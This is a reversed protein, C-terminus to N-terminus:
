AANVGRSFHRPAANEVPVEAAQGREALKAAVGEAIKEDMSKRPPRPKSERTGTLGDKYTTGEPLKARLAELEARFGATTNAVEMLSNGSVPVAITIEFMPM